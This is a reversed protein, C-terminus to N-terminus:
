NEYMTLSELLRNEVDSVYVAVAVRVAVAVAVAVNLKDIVTLSMEFRFVYPLM